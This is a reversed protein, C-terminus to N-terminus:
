YDKETNINLKEIVGNFFTKKIKKKPKIEQPLIMNNKNKLTKSSYLTKLEKIMSEKM